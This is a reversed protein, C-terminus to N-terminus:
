KGLTECYSKSSSSPDKPRCNLSKRCCSDLETVHGQGREKFMSEGTAYNDGLKQKALIPCASHNLAFPKQHLRLLQAYNQRVTRQKYNM